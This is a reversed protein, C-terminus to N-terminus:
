QHTKIRQAPQDGSESPSLKPAYIRKHKSIPIKFDDSIGLERSGFSREAGVPQFWPTIDLPALESVQVPNGSLPVARCYKTETAARV